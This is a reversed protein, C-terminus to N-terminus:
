RGFINLITTKEIELVKDSSYINFDKRLESENDSDLYKNGIKDNTIVGKSLLIDDKFSMLVDIKLDIEFVDKSKNTINEIFYYRNFEPIYAYNNLLFGNNRLLLSPTLINVPEKLRIESIHKEDILTKNLVRNDDKTNYLYMDM